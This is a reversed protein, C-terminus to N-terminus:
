KDLKCCDCIQQWIRRYDREVLQPNRHLVSLEELAIGQLYFIRFIYHDPIILLDVPTGWMYSETSCQRPDVHGRPCVLPLDKISTYLQRAVACQAPDSSFYRDANGQPM